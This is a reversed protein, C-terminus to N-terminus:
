RAGSRPASAERADRERELRRSMPESGELLSRLEFITTVSGRVEALIEYFRSRNDQVVEIELIWLQPDITLLQSIQQSITPSIRARNLTAALSARDDARDDRGRVLAQFLDDDDGAIARLIEDDVAALSMQPPGHARLLDPREPNLRSLITVLWERTNQDPVRDVRTLVSGQGDRVRFLVVLDNGVILRNVVDGSEAYERLKGPQLKRLWLETLDRLGLLEHHRRYDDIQREVALSHNVGRSLGVTLVLGAMVLLGLVLVFAFGRRPVGRAARTPRSTACARNM